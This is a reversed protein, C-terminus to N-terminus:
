RKGKDDAKIKKDHKDHMQKDDHHMKKEKPMEGGMMEMPNKDTNWIDAKIKLSGDDQIEWVSVYKGHDHMTEPMQPMNMSLKYTGIEIVMDGSKMVEMTNFDFHNFKIGMEDMASNEKAMAEKGKIMPSWNPMSIADDTYYAMGAHYDGKVLYDAMKNNIKQIKERLKQNEQAYAPLILLMSIVIFMSKFKRM